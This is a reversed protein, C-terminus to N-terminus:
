TSVPTEYELYLFQPFQPRLRCTTPVRPIPSTSGPGQTSREDTIMVPHAQGWVGTEPHQATAVCSPM